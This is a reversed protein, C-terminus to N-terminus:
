VCNKIKNNKIKLKFNYLVGKDGLAYLTGKRYAIASIERFKIGKYKSFSLEVSDLINIKNIKTKYFSNPKITYNIMNAYLDSFIFFSLFLLKYM